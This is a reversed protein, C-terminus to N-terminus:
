KDQGQVSVNQCQVAAMRDDWGWWDAIIALGTAAGRDLGTGSDVQPRLEAVLTLQCGSPLSVSAAVAPSAAAEM